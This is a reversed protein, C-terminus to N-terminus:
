FILKSRREMLTNDYWEGDLKGIKERIGVIRFGCKTHLAISAKNVSFIGAQLTWYGKEECLSILNHLLSSGIGKNKYNEAIYLSVEAVGRYVERKSAPSITAFGVLMNEFEAVLSCDLVHNKRWKKWKPVTTEFTAIRTDMGAKYIKAVEAWDEKFMQRIHLSRDM